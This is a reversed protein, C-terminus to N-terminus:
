QTSKSSRLGRDSQLDRRGAVLSESCPMETIIAISSEHVAIRKATSIDLYISGFQPWWTKEILLLPSYVAEDVGIKASCM